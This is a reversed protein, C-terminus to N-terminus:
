GGRNCTQSSPLPQPKLSLCVHPDPLMEAYHPSRIFTPPPPTFQNVMLKETSSHGETRMRLLHKIYCTTKAASIKMKTFVTVTISFSVAQIPKDDQDATMQPEWVKIKQGSVQSVVPIASGKTRLESNCWRKLAPGNIWAARCKKKIRGRIRLKLRHKWWKEGRSKDKEKPFSGFGRSRPKEKLESCLCHPDPAWPWRKVQFCVLLLFSLGRVCGETSALCFDM